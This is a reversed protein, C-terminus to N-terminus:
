VDSQEAESLEKRNIYLQIQGSVDQLVMFAGRKRMIRGAVKVVHNLEELEAKEADVFKEQLEAATADRRWQNPFANGQERKATLKARREAILKNEDNSTTM